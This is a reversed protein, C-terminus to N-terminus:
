LQFGFNRLLGERNGGGGLGQCGSKQAEQEKSKVRKESRLNIHFKVTNTKRDPKNLRYYGGPKDM